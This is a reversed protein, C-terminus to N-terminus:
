EYSTPSAARIREDWFAPFDRIAGEYVPNPRGTNPDIRETDIPRPMLTVNITMSEGHEEDVPRLVTLEITEGPEHARIRQGFERM